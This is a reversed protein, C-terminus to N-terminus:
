RRCFVQVCNLCAAISSMTNVSECALCMASTSRLCPSGYQIYLVRFAGGGWFLRIAVLVVRIIVGAESAFRHRRALKEVMHRMQVDSMM